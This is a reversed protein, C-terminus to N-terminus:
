RSRQMLADFCYCVPFLGDDGESAAAAAARDCRVGRRKGREGGGGLHQREDSNCARATPSQEARTEFSASLPIRSLSQFGPAVSTKLLRRRPRRHVRRHVRAAPRTIAAATKRSPPPMSAGRAGSETRGIASQQCEAELRRERHTLPLMLGRGRPRNALKDRGAKKRERAFLFRECKNSRTTRGREKESVKGKERESERESRRGRERKREYFVGRWM